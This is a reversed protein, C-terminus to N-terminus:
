DEDGIVIQNCANEISVFQPGTVAISPRALADGRKSGMMPDGNITGRCVTDFRPEVESFRRCKKVDTGLREPQSGFGPLDIRDM